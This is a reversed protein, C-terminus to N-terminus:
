AARSAERPRTLQGALDTVGHSTDGITRIIGLTISEGTDVADGVLKDLREDISRILKFVGQQASEVFLLTGLIRQHVEGRVDRVIGFSTTVTREALEAGHSVWSGVIGEEGGGKLEAKSIKAEKAEAM